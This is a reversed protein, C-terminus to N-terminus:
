GCPMAGVALSLALGGTLLSGLVFGVLVAYRLQSDVTGHDHGHGHGGTTTADQKNGSSDASGM